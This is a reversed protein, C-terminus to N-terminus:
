NRFWMNYKGSGNRHLAADHYQPGSGLKRVDYTDAITPGTCDREKKVEARIKVETVGFSRDYSATLDSEPTWIERPKLFRPAYAGRHIVWAEYPNAVTYVTIWACYMTENEIHVIRKVDASASGATAVAITCLLLMFRVINM